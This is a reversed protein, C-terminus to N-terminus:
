AEEPCISKHVCTAITKLTLLPDVLTSSYSIKTSVTTILVRVTAFLLFGTGSVQPHFPLKSIQEESGLSDEPM